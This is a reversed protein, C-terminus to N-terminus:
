IDRKNAPQLSDDCKRLQGLGSCMFIKSILSRTLKKYKDKGMIM